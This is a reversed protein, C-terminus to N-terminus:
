YNLLNSTVAELVQKTKPFGYFTITFLAEYLLHGVLILIVCLGFMGEFCARKLTCISGYWDEDFCHFKSFGPYWSNTSVLDTSLLKRANQIAGTVWFIRPYESNQSPIWLPKENRSLKSLHIKATFSAATGVFVLFSVFNPKDTNVPQYLFFIEEQIQLLIMFFSEQFVTLQFM